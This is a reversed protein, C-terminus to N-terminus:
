KVGKRLSYEEAMMAVVKGHPHRLLRSRIRDPMEDLELNSTIILSVNYMLRYDIITELKEQVWGTRKEIGFDDLLLLPVTCYYNFTSEYEGSDYGRRLDELLISTLVYRAPVGANIWARCISVALHTKGIDNNGLFALWALEGPQTAMAEADEYATKVAPYIKFNDFTMNEAYPPLECARLLNEIRRKKVDGQCYRCPIVRSYDPVGNVVPHVFGAGRCLRCCKTASSIKTNEEQTNQSAM